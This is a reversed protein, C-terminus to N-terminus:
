VSHAVSARHPEDCGLRELFGVERGERWLQDLRADERSARFAAGYEVREEACACRAENALLMVTVADADFEIGFVDGDGAAAQTKRSRFQLVHKDLSW